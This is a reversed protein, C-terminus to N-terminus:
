QPYLWRIELIGSCNLLFYPWDIFYVNYIRFRFKSFQFLVLIIYSHTGFFEQSLWFTSLM